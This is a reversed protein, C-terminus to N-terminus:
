DDDGEIEGQGIQPMVEDNEEMQEEGEEIVDDDQMQNQAMQNYLMQQQHLRHMDQEGEEEGENEDEEDQGEGQDDGDDATGQEMAQGINTSPFYATAANLRDYYEASVLLERQEETLHEDPNM